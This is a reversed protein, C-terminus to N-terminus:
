CFSEIRESAISDFVLGKGLYISTFRVDVCLVSECFGSGARESCLEIGDSM